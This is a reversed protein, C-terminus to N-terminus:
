FYAGIAFEWEGQSEGKRPSINKGYELRLPGLPSMWRVGAGASVRFDPTSDYATGVDTFIVGKFKAEESIPFSYEATFLMENEGGIYTGESDKPGVERLGRMTYIDGVQYREALPIEHGFLGKTFGVTGSVAITMDAPLPFFVQSTGEFRAFYNDGGIGAYTVSVKERTGSHPDLTNDRTDYILYPTISSTVSKGKQSELYSSATNSINTINLQEIRYGAGGKVYESLSKGLGLYIGTAQKDYDDYEHKTRYISSSFSIPKDMLWPELFSIEFTNKSEGVEAKFKLTQGRGGLNGETLEFLGVFQDVTSYGVGLSFSGTSKEKVDIDMDVTRTIPDPRQNFKVWDFYNLNMLRQYSRRLHTSNYTDGEYEKIERRIVYDRTNVNGRIDIRGMKYIDGERLNYTISGEHKEDDTKIDPMTSAMAYGQETYTSTLTEIDDGIGKRSLPDGPKSKVKAKLDATEMVKNGAIDVATIKYVPGETVKYTLDVLLKDPTYEIAAPQVDVKLFGKDLYANKIAEGDYEISAREFRGGGFVIRWWRWESSKIADILKKREINDNGEFKIQRVKVRPGEKIHYLVNVHDESAAKLVPVVVAHPYGESEYFDRIKVAGDSILIPDAIAGPSVGSKEQLKTDEFENNGYFAVGRISSKEVVVYIVKVGGEFPEIEVKVDKFYGTDFLAKIDTAVSDTSLLMGVGQTLRPKIAAEDIRSLGKIQIGRVPPSILEDEAALALAAAGFVITFIVMAIAAGFRAKRFINDHSRM